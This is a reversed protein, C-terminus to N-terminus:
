NVIEIVTIWAYKRIWPFRNSIKEDLKMLMALVKDFIEKNRFFSVFAAMLSLLYFEKHHVISFHQRMENLISYDLPKETESHRDPTFRRYLKAIPHHNLPEVFIARGGPKLVRTIESLVMSIDLHHIVSIGFMLDMSSSEFAIQEGAMQLCACYCGNKCAASQLRMDANKVMRHSIDFAYICAGTDLLQLTREGEGCGMDVIKKGDGNGVLALAYKISAASLGYARFVTWRTDKEVM